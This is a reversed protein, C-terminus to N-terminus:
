LSSITSENWQQHVHGQAIAELMSYIEQLDSESLPVGDWHLNKQKLLEKANHSYIPGNPDDTKCLIYDISVHFLESLLLMKDMPPHRYNTEYGAYSSKSIGIREAVQSMSFGHKQRLARLRKGYPVPM